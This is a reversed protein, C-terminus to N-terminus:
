ISFITAVEQWHRLFFTEEFCFVISNFHSGPVERSKKAPSITYCGDSSSPFYPLSIFNNFFLEVSAASLWLSEMMIILTMRRRYYYDSKTEDRNRKPHIFHNVLQYMKRWEDLMKGIYLKMLSFTEWKIITKTKCKRKKELNKGNSLRCIKMKWLIGEGYRGYLTLFFVSHCIIFFSCLILFLTYTNM